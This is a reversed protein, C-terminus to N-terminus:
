KAPAKSASCAQGYVGLMAGAFRKPDAAEALSRSAAPSLEPPAARLARALDHADGARFLHGLGFRTLTETLVPVDAAIVPRGLAAAMVLPGSQGTFMPRYPLLVVDAAAFLGPIAENRIHELRLLVRDEVRHRATLSRLSAADFHHPEGAVLLRCNPSAESLAEIALDVGKDFRTGGFCLLLYEGAGVGLEARVQGRVEPPAARMDGSNPYHLATVQLVGRSRLYRAAHESHVVLHMGRRALWALGSRTYWSKIWQRPRRMSMGLFPYWHLTGVVAVRQPLGARAVAEIFGDLYMLHIVDVGATACAAFCASIFQKFQANRRRWRRAIPPLDVRVPTAVAALASTWELPGVAFAEHGSRRLTEAIDREYVVHHGGAAFNVMAVRM